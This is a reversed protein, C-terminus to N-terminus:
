VSDMTKLEVKQSTIKPLPFRRVQPFTQIKLIFLRKSEPLTPNDLIRLLIPFFLSGHNSCVKKAFLLLCPANNLPDVREEVIKLDADEQVLRADFLQAADGRASHQGGDKKEGEDAGVEIAADDVIVSQAELLIGGIGQEFIGAMVPACEEQANGPHDHRNGFRVIRRGFFSRLLSRLYAFSSPIVQPEINIVRFPVGM